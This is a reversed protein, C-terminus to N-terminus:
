LPSLFITQAMSSTPSLLSLAFERVLSDWSANAQPEVASVEIKVLGMSVPTAGAHLVTMQM